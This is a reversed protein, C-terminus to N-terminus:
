CYSVYTLKVIERDTEKEVREVSDGLMFCFSTELQESSLEGHVGFQVLTDLPATKTVPKQAAVTFPRDVMDGKVDMVDAVM